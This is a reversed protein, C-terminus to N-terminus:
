FSLNPLFSGRKNNTFVWLCTIVYYYIALIWPAALLAFIWAGGQAFFDNSYIIGLAALYGISILLHWLKKKAFTSNAAVSVLSSTLQWVGILLQGLAVGYLGYTTGLVLTAMLLITQGTIDVYKM